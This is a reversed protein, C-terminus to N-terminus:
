GVATKDAGSKLHIALLFIVIGFILVMPGEVTKWYGPMGEAFDVGWIVAGFFVFAAGLYCVVLRYRHLDFSCLLFLGGMLAYFLSLSRALYGVIPEPPLTGMGLARHISDMWHYPIFVAILALMSVAGLCRIMCRLIREPWEAPNSNM